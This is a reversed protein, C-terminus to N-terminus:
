ESNDAATELARGQRGCTNIQLMIGARIHFVHVSVHVAWLGKRSRLWGMGAIQKPIEFSGVPFSGITYLSAFLVSLVELSIVPDLKRTTKYVSGELSLWVATRTELVELTKRIYMRSVFNSWMWGGDWVWLLFFEGVNEGCCFCKLYTWKCYPKIVEVKFSHPVSVNERRPWNTGDVNKPNSLFIGDRCVM